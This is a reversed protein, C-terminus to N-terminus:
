CGEDTLYSSMTNEKMTELKIANGFCKNVIGLTGFYNEGGKESLVLM